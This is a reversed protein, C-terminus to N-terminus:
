PTKKVNREVITLLENFSPDSDIVTKKDGDIVLLQECSPSLLIVVEHEDKIFRLGYETVFLCSKTLDFIHNEDNVILASITRSDETNVEEEDGILTYEYPVKPEAQFALIENAETIVKITQSGVKQELRSHNKAIPRHTSSCSSFLVLVSIILLYPYIQM